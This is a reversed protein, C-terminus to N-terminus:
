PSVGSQMQFTKLCTELQPDLPAIVTIRQKLSPLTFDISKAHLFLRTLGMRRALKNFEKDGYREDGAIPHGEHQAHVRIQHTRGTFLTVEVLSAQKFLKISKFISLSTKGSPHVIVKHKGSVNFQKYLPRDVSIEKSKWRGQTLTLYIKTVKGERLLAHVERLIKKKKALILCGSTESDLRHALELDPLKPYLSRLAEIIGIRVTSGGHVSMGSPKNIILLNEDEYLIRGKLLETTQKSPPVIKASQDLFMPPLRLVDGAKLRYHTAIRHKNVRIEGKRILRYIHSRPMGKLKKILFNDVRQEDEDPLITIFKVKQRNKTSNKMHAKKPNLQYLNLNNIFNNKLTM